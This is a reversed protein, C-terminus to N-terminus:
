PVAIGLSRLQAISMRENVSQSANCWMRRTPIHYLLYFYEGNSLRFEEHEFFNRGLLAFYESNSSWVFRETGPPRGEDPSDFITSVSRSSLDTVTVAFNRDIPFLVSSTEVLSV